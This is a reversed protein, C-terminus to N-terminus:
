NMDSAKEYLNIELIKKKGKRKKEKSHGKTKNNRKTTALVCLAKM